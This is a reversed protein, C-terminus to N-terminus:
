RRNCSCCGGIRYWIKKIRGGIKNLDLNGRSAAVVLDIVVPLATEVVLDATQEDSDSLKLEGVLKRIVAIVIQKKNEGSLEPYKEVVLMINTGWEIVRVVNFEGKKLGIITNKVSGYIKDVYGSLEDNNIGNLSSMIPDTTM